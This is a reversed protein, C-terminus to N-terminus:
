SVNHTLEANSTCTKAAGDEMFCVDTIHGGVSKPKTEAFHLSSAFVAQPCYDPKTERLYLLAQIELGPSM